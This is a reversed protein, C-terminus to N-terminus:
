RDQTRVQAPSTPSEGHTNDHYPLHTSSVRPARLSEDEFRLHGLAYPPSRQGVRQPTENPSRKLELVNFTGPIGLGLNYYM